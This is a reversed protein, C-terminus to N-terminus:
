IMILNINSLCLDIDNYNEYIFYYDCLSAKNENINEKLIYEMVLKINTNTNMMDYIIDYIVVVKDLCINKSPLSTVEKEELISEDIFFETEGVVKRIHIDKKVSKNWIHSDKDIYFMGDPTYIEKYYHRTCEKISIENSTNIKEEFSSPSLNNVYIKKCNTNTKSFMIYYVITQIINKTIKIRHQETKYKNM